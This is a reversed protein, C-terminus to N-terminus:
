GPRCAAVPRQVPRRRGVPVRGRRCGAQTQALFPERLCLPAGWAYRPRPHVLGNGGYPLVTSADAPLRAPWGAPHEDPLYELEAAASSYSAATVARLLSLHSSGISTVEANCRSM